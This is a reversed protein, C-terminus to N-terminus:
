EEQYIIEEIYKREMNHRLKRNIVSDFLISFDYDKPYLKKAAIHLKVRKHNIWIKKNPLQVRLIGKEDIPRCVIGIKKDPYIIVSDGIQYKSSLDPKTTTKKSSQCSPQTRKKWLRIKRKSIIHVFQRREMLQELHPRLCKM